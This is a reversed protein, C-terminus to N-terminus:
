KKSGGLLGGLGEKLTDVPSSKDSSGGLGPIVEKLKQGVADKAGKALSEQLAKQDVGLKLDDFSGSLTLPLEKPQIPLNGLKPLKDSLMKLPVNAQRGVLDFSAGPAEIKSDRTVMFLDKFDLKGRAINFAGGLKDFETGKSQNLGQAAGMLDSVAGPALTFGRIIGHQIVVDGLGDLTKLMDQGGASKLDLKFDTKGGLWGLKGLYDQLLPGVELGAVNLKLSPNLLSEALTAQANAVIKGGYMMAELPEVRFTGNKGLVTVLIDTIKLNMFKLQGVRAKGNVTLAKLPQSEGQKATKGPEATKGAQGAQAKSEPPLYRDADLKDVSLDFGVDPSAFDKVSAQGAITTDDLVAKIDQINLANASGALKMDAKFKGLVAPDKTTVAPLGFKAMVARPSFEAISLAGSAGKPGSTLGGSVKLDEAALNFSPIDATGAKGNVDAKDAAFTLTASKGPLSDGKFQAKLNVGRLQALSQLWNVLGDVSLDADIEQAPPGKGRLSSKLKFGKLNAQSAAMDVAVDGGVDVTGALSQSGQALEDLKLSLALKDAQAKAGDASVTAVTKVKIQGKAKPENAEFACSFDVPVSSGPAISGVELNLDRVTAKQGAQADTWYLQGGSISLGGINLQQVASGQAQPTQSQQAPPASQAKGGSFKQLMDDWAFKGAKDRGLRLVPQRLVVTGVEVNRSLLPLLKVRVEADGVSVMPEPGFGPGAGLEVGQLSVGLWPFVTLKLDGKIALTRGTLKQVEDAIRGRFQNPDIFRPLLVVALAVLVVLAGAIGLLIKLLRSM